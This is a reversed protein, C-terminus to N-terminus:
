CALVPPPRFSFRGLCSIRRAPNRGLHLRLRRLEHSCRSDFIVALFLLLTFAAAAAQIAPRMDADHAVTRRQKESLLKAFPVSSRSERQPTPYLSLKYETGWALVSAALLSIAIAM